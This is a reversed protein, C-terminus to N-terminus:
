GCGIVIKAILCVTWSVLATFGTKIEQQIVNKTELSKEPPRMSVGDLQTLLIAQCKTETKDM